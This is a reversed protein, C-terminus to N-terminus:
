TVMVTACAQLRKHLDSTPTAQQMAHKCSRVTNISVAYPLVTAVAPDPLVIVKAVEPLAALQCTLALTGM